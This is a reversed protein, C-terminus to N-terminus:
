VVLTSWEWDNLGYSPRLEKTAQQLFYLLPPMMCALDEVHVVRAQNM